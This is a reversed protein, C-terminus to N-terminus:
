PQAIQNNTIIAWREMLNLYVQRCAEVDAAARHTPMSEVGLFKCLKELSLGPLEANNFYLPWALSVTDIKHYGWPPKMGLRTFLPSLFGEDFSVNQGVLVTNGSMKQLADVVDEPRACKDRPWEAASYKNVELARPEATELHEPFLKAEYTQIVTRGDPSTRIAAVELLEHKTSDLGTTETDVFLLDQLKKIPAM